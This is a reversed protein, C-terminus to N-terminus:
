ASSSPESDSSSNFFNSLGIESFSDEAEFSGFAQALVGYAATEHEIRGQVQEGLAITPARRNPLSYRTESCGLTMDDRADAQGRM